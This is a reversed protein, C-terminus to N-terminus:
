GPIQSLMELVFPNTEREQGITTLPGHGTFVIIDDGLPLLKNVISDALLAYDGGPLDTRGISGAFLVDGSFLKDGHLLAVHGPCHGPVFLVEFRIGGVFVPKGEELYETASASEYPPLGLMQAAMVNGGKMMSEDIKHIMVAAAPYARHMAAVGCVHDIHGHTCLISELTLGKEALIGGWVRDADYGPDVIAARRTVPDAILYANTAFPGGAIGKIEFESM